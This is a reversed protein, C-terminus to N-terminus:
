YNPAFHKCGEFRKSAETLEFSECGNECEISITTNGHGNNRFYSPYTSGLAFGPTSAVCSVETAFILPMKQSM